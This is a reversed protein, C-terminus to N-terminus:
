RLKLFLFMLVTPLLMNLVALGITRGTTPRDSALLLFLMVAALAISLAGVAYFWVFTRFGALRAHAPVAIFQWALFAALGLNCLFPIGLGIWRRGRQGIM